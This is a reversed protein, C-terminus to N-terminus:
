QRSYSRSTDGRTYPTTYNVFVDISPNRNAYDLILDLLEDCTEICGSTGGKHSNHIYFNDRQSDVDVKELRMRWDGWLYRMDGHPRDPEGPPIQQIGSSSNLHLNDYGAIRGPDRTLDIRYQGGPIPGLKGGAAAVQQLTGSTAACSFLPKQKRGIGRRGPYYNM